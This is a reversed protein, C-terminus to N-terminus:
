TILPILSAGGGVAAIIFPLKYDTFYSTDLVFRIYGIARKFIVRLFNYKYQFQYYIAEKGDHGSDVVYAKFRSDSNIKELFLEGEELTIDQSPVPPHVYIYGTKYIPFSYSDKESPLDVHAGWGPAHISDSFTFKVNRGEAIAMEKTIFDRLYSSEWGYLASEVSRNMEAVHIEEKYYQRYRVFSYAYLLVLAMNLVEPKDIRIITGLLNIQEISAGSLFLLPMVISIFLLNRRQRLLGNSIERSRGSNDPM